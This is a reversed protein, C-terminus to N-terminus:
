AHAVPHATNVYPILPATDAPIISATSFSPTWTRVGGCVGQMACTRHTASAARSVARAARQQGQVHSASGARAIRPQSVSCTRQRWTFSAHPMVSIDGRPVM